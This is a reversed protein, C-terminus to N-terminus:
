KCRYWWTEISDKLYPSWSGYLIKASDLDMAGDKKDACLMIKIDENSFLDFQTPLVSIPTDVNEKIQVSSDNAHNVTDAAPINDKSEEKPDNNMSKNNTCSILLQIVIFLQLYRFYKYRNEMIVGVENTRIREKGIELRM